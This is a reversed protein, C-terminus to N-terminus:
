PTTSTLAGVSLSYIIPLPMLRSSPPEVTMGWTHAERDDENREVHAEEVIDDDRPSQVVEEGGEGHVERPDVAVVGPVARVAGVGVGAVRTIAQAEIVGEPGRRSSLVKLLHDTRGAPRSFLLPPLDPFAPVAGLIGGWM